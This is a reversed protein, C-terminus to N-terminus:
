IYNDLSNKYFNKFEERLYKPELIEIEKGFRLFYFIIIDIPVKFTLIYFNEEKKQDEINPRIHSIKTYLKYGEETMKIKIKEIETTTFNKNEIKENIIKQTTESIKYEKGKNKETKEIFLIESLRISFLKEEEKKENIKLILVHNYNENKTSFMGVPRFFGKELNKIELLVESKDAIAKEIKELEEHFIIKERQFKPKQIYWEIIIRFFNTNFYNQEKKLKEFESKVDKNIRFNLKKQKKNLRPNIPKYIISKLISLIEEKDEKKIYGRLREILIETLDDKDKIKLYTKFIKNLFSNNTKQNFIKRDEELRNFSEESIFINYNENIEYFM